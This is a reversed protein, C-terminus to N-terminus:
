LPLSGLLEVMEAMTMQDRAVLVASVACVAVWQRHILTQAKDRAEIVLREQHEASGSLYGTFRLVVEMDAGAGAMVEELSEDTGRQQAVPGASAIVVHKKCLRIVRPSSDRDSQFWKPWPEGEIRGLSYNEGPIVSVARFPVGLKWAAVAHGAEHFATAMLM